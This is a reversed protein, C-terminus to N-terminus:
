ITHEHKLPIDFQKMFHHVIQKLKDVTEYNHIHYDFKENDVDVESPHLDKTHLNRHIYVTIADCKHAYELENKFRADTIIILDAGLTVMTALKDDVRHIWYLNDYLKRRFDTGWGQLILRFNDKHENIFKASVGCARAVEEKLSDAYAVEHVTDSALEAIIKAVTNKGSGAKGSLSIIKM